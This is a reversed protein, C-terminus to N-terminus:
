MGNDDEVKAISSDIRIATRKGGVDYTQEEADEADPARIWLQATLGGLDPHYRGFWDVLRGIFCKGDIWVSMDGVTEYTYHGPGYSFYASRTKETESEPIPCLPKISDGEYRAATADIDDLAHTLATHLADDLVIEPGAGGNSQLTPVSLQYRYRVTLKPVAGVRTLPRLLYLDDVGYRSTRYAAYIRGRLRIWDASQNAGRDNISYLYSPEIDALDVATDQDQPDFDSYAQLSTYNGEFKGGRRQLASIYSFLGTGGVYSDIILDRLGDGDLDILTYTAYGHEGGGDIRSAQLARWEDSSVGEPRKVPFRAVDDSADDAMDNSFTTGEAEIRLSAIVKELPFEPDTMRMVDVANRLDELAQRDVEDPVYAVAEQLQAQLAAIREHYQNALCSYGQCRDRAGLWQTQQRRLIHRQQPQIDILKGYISALRADLRQLDENSCIETEVPTAARGCDINSAFAM